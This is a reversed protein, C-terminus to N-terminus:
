VRVAVGKVNGWTTTLTRLVSAGSELLLLFLDRESYLCVEDRVDYKRAMAPSLKGWREYISQEHGAYGEGLESHLGIISLYLKGGIKLQQMLQQILQKGRAYPLKCLGHRFVIIDYPANPDQPPPSPLETAAFRIHDPYGAALVRGEIEQKREARDALTVRAGLAAFRSALKAGGAPLVLVSVANDFRQRKVCEELALQQIPDNEEAWPSPQINKHM